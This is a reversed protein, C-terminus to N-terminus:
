RRRTNEFTVNNMHSPHWSSWVCSLCSWWRCFMDTIWEELLRRWNTHGHWFPLLWMSCLATCQWRPQTCVCHLCHMECVIIMNHKFTWSQHLVMINSGLILSTSCAGHQPIRHKPQLSVPRGYSAYGFSFETSSWVVIALLYPANAVVTTCLTLFFQRSLAWAHTIPDSWPEPSENQLLCYNMEYTSSSREPIDIPHHPALDSLWEPFFLSACCPTMQTDGLRFMCAPGTTFSICSSGHARRVSLTLSPCCFQSLTDTGQCM